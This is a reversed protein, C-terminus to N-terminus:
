SGEWFGSSPPLPVSLCMSLLHLSSRRLLQRCHLCNFGTNLLLKLTRSTVAGKKPLPTCLAEYSELFTKSSSLTSTACRSLTWHWRS